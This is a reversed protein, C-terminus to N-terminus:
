IITFVDSLGTIEFVKITKPHLSRLTLEGGLQRLRKMGSILVALGTSDIFDLQSMDVTVSRVGRSVLGVLEERLPPATRLDLEGSVTVIASTDDEVVTMQFDDVNLGVSLRM